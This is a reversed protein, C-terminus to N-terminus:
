NAAQKKFLQTVKENKMKCGIVITAIAFICTLLVVFVTEEVGYITSYAFVNNKVEGDIQLFSSAAAMGSNPLGFIFNQTFNWMSHIGFAIYVNDFYYVTLAFFVGILFTAIISLATAGPNALHAAAFFASSLVLAVWVPYRKLTKEYIFVRAIVEEGICQLSCIIFCIIGAIGLTGPKFNVCGFLHAVLIALGNMAFGIVLGILFTVINNKKYGYKLTAFIDKYKIAMYITFIIGMIAVPTYNYILAYALPNSNAISKTPYLIIIAIINSVVFLVLTEIVIGIISGRFKERKEKKLAKKEEKTMKESM